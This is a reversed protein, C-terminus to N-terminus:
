FMERVLRDADAQTQLDPWKVRVVPAAGTGRLHDDLLADKLKDSALQASSSHGIEGDVQVPYLTPAYVAFDLEVEGLMSRGALYPVRFEYTVGDLKDLAKSFREELDSAPMGQVVKDLLEGDDIYQPRLRKVYPQAHHPAKYVPAKLAGPIPKITM